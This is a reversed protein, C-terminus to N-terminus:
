LVPKATVFALGPLRSRVLPYTGEPICSIRPANDRWPREVAYCLLDEGVTLRGFTAEPAYCFRELHVRIM